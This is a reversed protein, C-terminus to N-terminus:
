GSHLCVCRVRSGFSGFSGFSGTATPAPSREQREDRDGRGGGLRSAPVVEDRGGVRGVQELGGAPGRQLARGAPFCAAVQEAVSGPRGPEALHKEPAQREAHADGVRRATREDPWPVQRSGEDREPGHEM